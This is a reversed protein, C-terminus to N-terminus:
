IHGYRDINVSLSPGVGYVGININVSVFDPLRWLGTPDIRSVPNGGVYEYTNPGDDLGLPDSELFRAWASQTCGCVAVLLWVFVQRKMISRWYANIRRVEKDQGFIREDGRPDRSAM